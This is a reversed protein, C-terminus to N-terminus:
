HCPSAGTDREAMAAQGQRDNRAEDILAELDAHSEMRSVFNLRRLVHVVETFAQDSLADFDATNRATQIQLDLLGDFYTDLIAHAELAESALAADMAGALRDWSPTEIRLGVAKVQDPDTMM